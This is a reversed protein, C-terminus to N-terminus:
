KNDTRKTSFAAPWTETNWKATKFGYVQGSGTLLEANFKQDIFKYKRLLRTTDQFDCGTSFNFFVDFQLQSFDTALPAFRTTTSVAPEDTYNVAIFSTWNLRNLHILWVIFIMFILPGHPAM